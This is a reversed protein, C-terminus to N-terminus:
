YLHRMSPNIETGYRTPSAMPTEPAGQRMSGDPTAPTPPNVQGRLVQIAGTFRFPDLAGSLQTETTPSMRVRVSETGTVTEVPASAPVHNGNRASDSNSSSSSQSGGGNLSEISPGAAPIARPPPPPAHIPPLREYPRARTMPRSTATSTRMVHSSPGPRVPTSSSPPDFVGRVASPLASPAVMHSPGARSSTPEPTRRSHDGRVPIAMMQVPAGPIPGMVVPTIPQTSSSQTEPRRVPSPVRYRTAPTKPTKPLRRQQPSPSGQNFPYDPRSNLPDASLNNPPPLNPPTTLGGRVAEGVWQLSAPDEVLEKPSSNPKVRKSPVGTDRAVSPGPGPDELKRKKHYESPHSGGPTSSRQYQRSEPLTHSSPQPTPRIEVPGVLTPPPLPLAPLSLPANSEQATTHESPSTLELGELLRPPAKPTTDPKPTKAGDVPSGLRPASEGELDTSSSISGQPKAKLIEELLLLRDNFASQFM